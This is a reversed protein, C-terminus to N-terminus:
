GKYLNGYSNPDIQSGGTMPTPYAGPYGSGHFPQQQSNYYYFPPMPTPGSQM